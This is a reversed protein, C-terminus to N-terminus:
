FGKAFPFMQTISEWKGIIKQVSLLHTGPTHQMFFIMNQFEVNKTEPFSWTLNESNFKIGLVTGKTSNQFSKEKNEDSPALGVNLHQCINQYHFALKEGENSVNACVFVTDDLTRHFLKKPFKCRSLALNAILEAVCDFDAPASKSGFITTTDVFFKGLWQFGHWKWMCPHTGINKYADKLDFKWIKAFFGADLLSYSFEKATSMSLKPILLEHVADNLSFLKPSSLNMVPRIKSPQVVAMLGNSRFNCLPPYPFPGSVYGASIWEAITDTVSAGHIIASDANKCRIPPLNYKTHTIAGKEINNGKEGGVEATQEM